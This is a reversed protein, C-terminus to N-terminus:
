RTNPKKEENLSSLFEQYKHEKNRRSTNYRINANSDTQTFPEPLSNSINNSQSSIFNPMSFDRDNNILEKGEFSDRKDEENIETHNYKTNDYQYKNNEKNDNANINSNSNNRDLYQYNPDLPSLCRKTVIGRIKTDCQSKDIEPLSYNFENGNHKERWQHYYNLSDAQAGEIDNTTLNSSPIRYKSFSCPKSGEIEGYIYNEGGYYRVDYLPDLPNVCRSWITKKKAVDSYDMSDYLDRRNNKKLSEVDDFSFTIMNDRIFKHHQRKPHTGKIDDINMSDRLFKDEIPPFNNINPSPLSYDPNLPNVHRSTVFNGRKKEPYAKEIDRTLLTYDSKDLYHYLPSPKSKEIDENTNTFDPKQTYFGYRRPSAGEIDLTYNNFSYNRDTDIHKFKRLRFDANNLPKNKMTNERNITPYNYDNLQNFNRMQLLKM